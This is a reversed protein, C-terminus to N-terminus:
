PRRISGSLTTRVAVAGPEHQADGGADRGCRPWGRCRAGASGDPPPSSPLHEAVIRRERRRQWLALVALAVFLPVMVMVYMSYFASGDNWVAAANWIAHVTVAMAYGALPLVLAPIM